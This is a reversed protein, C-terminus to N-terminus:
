IAGEKTMQTLVEKLMVRAQDIDVGALQAGAINMHGGGGMREMIIQVNVEDIARASIFIKDNYETLVFSAKVGIINLLENAAQAGVVTPSEIGQSPCVSIAYCDMFSEAHRVAEARAKYTAMDNRFAKRVRTVDAGNKRLYAAAEFTRIGTKAVFNNTDIIIGAYICDSEYPKLRVGEDYYQLIETIMECASSVAPDIYSLAANEIKETGQRHHDFVVTTKTLYLLEECEVMGPRNTDVIVVVTNENTLQIAQEHTVFVGEAYELNDRLMNVWPRISANMEGLVIHVPKGSRMAASCVGVCAGLSDIDTNKHGMVIVRERAGILERMAQAKVRARVRTNSESRQTKGGFFSIREQDKVVAQDGGRALAMEIAVHAAEFNETYNGNDTGIGISVTVNLSNGLNVTKVDELISFRDELLSNLSVRNMVLLYKDKELNKILGGASIIYKTIRRDVMAGLMSRRIDEVSDMAEDYNDVYLLGVVAKQEFNEQKLCSLETIDIFHLAIVSCGDSALDAIDMGDLAEQLRIRKMVVRYKREGYDIEEQTEEGEGPFCATSLGPFVSSIGKHCDRAKGSMECLLGNMWAFRGDPLVFGYPIMMDDLLEKEVGGFRQAFDILELLVRPRYYIDLVFVTVYLVISFGGVICGALTDVYLIVATLLLLLLLLLVCWYWHRLLKGSYRLQVKNDAKDDKM